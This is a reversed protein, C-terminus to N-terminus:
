LDFFSLLEQTTLNSSSTLHDGLAGNAIMAKHKQIKIINQEVTRDILLRTVHVPLKQGIRHVRDIAQDEVAPNWWVDMLIVRNAATLNLGLSGCKLSILMVRCEPDSKLVQLSKERANNPMSGDYRCFKFGLEHLPQEMLDLMSTFQSFIITKDDPYKNRTNVLIDLMKNIKTSSLSSTSTAIMTTYRKIQNTCNVCYPPVKNGNGAEETDLQMVPRACLECFHKSATKDFVSQGVQGVGSWGLDAAMHTMLAQKMTAETTERKVSQQQVTTNETTLALLDDDNNLSRLVLQPHNCAQRLRLVLCLMNMYNRTGKGTQVIKRVAALSKKNLVDYLAREDPTFELVVDQKQRPPLSLVLTSSPSPETPTTVGSTTSTSSTSSSSSSIPRTHDSTSQTNLIQKTRRLMIAALLTKLRELALEVNGLQIPSSIARKFTAFDGFSPIRLFRLLSYLEEVRNQIPTGTLCWRKKAVLKNCAISSRTMHNKIQQAEDLVIRHWEMQFLPGDKRAPRGQNSEEQRGHGDPSTARSSAASTDNDVVMDDDGSLDGDMIETVVSGNKITTSSIQGQQHQHRKRGRKKSSDSTALDSAVIQYTTVVVDYHDFDKYDTTRDSGHHVLLNINGMTTKTKFESAWQQILALPAVILTKRQRDLTKTVLGITQITKGLGMDDALIGGSSYENDERDVMWRIGEVQHPLLTIALGEMHLDDVTLGYQKLSDGDIDEGSIDETSTKTNAIRRRMISSPISDLLKTIRHKTQEDANINNPAEMMAMNRSPSSQNTTIPTNNRKSFRPNNYRCAPNFFPPDQLDAKRHLLYRCLIHYADSRCYLIIYLPTRTTNAKNRPIVTDWWVLHREAIPGLINTDDFPVWGYFKKPDKKSTIIFSYNNQRLGELQMLVPEFLDDKILLLPDKTVVDSKLMGLCINRNTMEEDIIVDDDDDDDNDDEKADVKNDNIGSTMKDLLATAAQQQDRKLSEVVTPQLVINPELRRYTAPSRATSHLSNTSYPRTISSPHPMFAPTMPGHQYPTNFVVPPSYATTPQLRRFTSIPFQSPHQQSLFPQHPDHHQHQQHIDSPSSSSSEDLTLDIMSRMPSQDRSQVQRVDNYPSHTATATSHLGTMSQSRVLQHPQWHPVTTATHPPTVNNSSPGNTNDSSSCTSKNRNSNGDTSHSNDENRPETYMNKTRPTWMPFASGEMQATTQPIQYSTESSPAQQTRRRKSDNEQQTTSTTLTPSWFSSTAQNFTYTPRDNHNM